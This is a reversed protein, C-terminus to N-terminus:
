NEPENKSNEFEALKVSFNNMRNALSSFMISIQEFEDRLQQLDEMIILM